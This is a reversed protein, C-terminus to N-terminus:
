PRPSLRRGGRWKEGEPRAHAFHRPLPRATVGPLGRLKGLPLRVTTTGLVGKVPTTIGTTIAAGAVALLHLPARSLAPEARPMAQRWDREVTQAPIRASTPRERRQLHPFRLVRPPLDRTQARFLTGLLRGPPDSLTLV